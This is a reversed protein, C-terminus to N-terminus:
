RDEGEVERLSKVWHILRSYKRHLSSVDDPNPVVMTLSLGCWNEMNWSRKSDRSHTIMRMFFLWSYISEIGWGPIQRRTTLNSHLHQAGVSEGIGQILKLEIRSFLGAWFLAWTTLERNDFRTMKTDEHTQPHAVYNSLHDLISTTYSYM